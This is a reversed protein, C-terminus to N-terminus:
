YIVRRPEVKGERRRLGNLLVRRIDTFATISKCSTFDYIGPLARPFNAPLAIKYIKTPDFDGEWPFIRGLKGGELLEISFGAFSLHPGASSIVSEFIRRLEAGPIEATVVEATEPILATIRAATVSSMKEDFSTRECPTAVNPTYCSSANMPPSLLSHQILAGDSDTELRILEAALCALPSDIRDTHILPKALSAIEIEMTQRSLTEDQDRIDIFRRELTPTVNKLELLHTKLAERLRALITVDVAKSLDPWSQRNDLMFDNVAVTYTASFDIPQKDVALQIIRFGPPNNSSWTCDIGSAQLFTGRGSLSEEILNELQWGYLTVKAISNEFPLIDYLDRLSVTGSSFSSKIGGSNQLAVQTKAAARIADTILDGITSEDSFSRKFDGDSHAVVEELLSDVKAEIRNVEAALEPDPTVHDADVVVNQLTAHSVNWRNGMYPVRVCGLAVGRAPVSPCILPMDSSEEGPARAMTIPGVTGSGIMDGIVVDVDPFASHVFEARDLGPQHSLLVILEAGQTKLYTATKAVAAKADTIEIQLVNEERTLRTLDSHGLGIIGIKSGAKEVIKGPIFTNGLPAKLDRYNCALMPLTGDAAFTRLMDLGFEFEMNGVAMGDYSLHAMLDHPAKGLTLSSEASGFLADGSDVILAAESAIHWHRLQEDIAGRIFAFGGANVRQYEGVDGQFPKIQGHLNCTYFIALNKTPLAMQDRVALTLLVIMLVAALAALRNIM